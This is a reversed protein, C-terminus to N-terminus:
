EYSYMVFLRLDGLRAVQQPDPLQVRWAGEVPFRDDVPVTEPGADLDESFGGQVTVRERQYGAEDRGYRIRIGVLGRDSPDLAQAVLAKFRLNALGGPFDGRELPVVATGTRLEDFADPFQQRLSFATIKDLPEGNEALDAEYEAILQEVTSELDDTDVGSILGFHMTVDAVRLEDLNHLEFRWLGTPAYGELARRREAPLMDDPTEVPILPSNLTSVFPDPALVYYLVGGVSAVGRGEIRQQRLAEALQDDTPILRTAGAVTADKQRVLFSGSHELVGRPGGPPGLADVEVAAAYLRCKHSFPFRKSLQYLSYEFHTEGEQLLRAFELPYHESLSIHEQFTQLNDDELELELRTLDRFDAKLAITAANLRAVANLKEPETIRDPDPDAWYDFRITPPLERGRAFALSREALYALLIASDLVRFARAEHLDALTLYLDADVKRNNLFEVRQALHEKRREAIFLETEAIERQIGAIDVDIEAMHLQHGLENRQAFFNVTAEVAGSIAVWKAPNEAIRSFLGAATQAALARRKDRILAVQEDMKDEQLEGLEVNSLYISTRLDEEEVEAAIQLEQDILDEASRLSELAKGASEELEDIAQGAARALASFRLVPVFGEWLGLANLGAALKGRQRAAHAEVQGRLANAPSIGSDVVLRAAAAYVTSLRDRDAGAVVRRRRLLFDGLALHAFASRLAVFRQEATIRRPPGAWTAFIGPLGVAQQPGTRREEYRQFLRVRVGIVNVEETVAPPLLKAYEHIAQVLDEAGGLGYLCENDLLRKRDAGARLFGGLAILDAAPVKPGEYGRVIVRNVRVPTPEGEADPPGLIFASYSVPGSYAHAVTTSTLQPLDAHSRVGALSTRARDFGRTNMLGYAERLKVADATVAPHGLFALLDRRAARVAVALSQVNAPPRTPSGPHTDIPEAAGAVAARVEGLNFSEFLEVFEFVKVGNEPYDTM